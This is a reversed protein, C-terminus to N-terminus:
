SFCVFTAKCLAIQMSVTATTLEEAQASYVLSDSDVPVFQKQRHAAVEKDVSLLGDKYCSKLIQLAEFTEPLMQNCFQIDTLGGNV